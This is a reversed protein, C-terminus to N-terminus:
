SAPPGPTGNAALPLARLAPTEGGGGSAAGDEFAVLASGDAAVAIRPAALYHGAAFALTVTSGLAGSTPLARSRVTGGIAWVAVAGGGERAVDVAVDIHLTHSAAETDVGGDATGGDDRM